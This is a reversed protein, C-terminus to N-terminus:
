ANKTGRVVAGPIPALKKHEKIFEPDTTPDKASTGNLPALTCALVPAVKCITNAWWTIGVWDASVAGLETASLSRLDPIKDFNFPKGDDDMVSWGADSARIRIREANGTQAPVLFGLM